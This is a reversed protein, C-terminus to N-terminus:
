VTVDLSITEAAAASLAISGLDVSVPLDAAADPVDSAGSVANTPLNAMMEQANNKEDEALEKQAYNREDRRRKTRKGRLEDDLTSAKEMEKRSEAAKKQLELTEEKNLHQQKKHIRSILKEMRRIMQAVKKADDGEALASAMKLSTLARTAKSSVDLVAIKTEARALMAALQGTSDEPISCSIKLDDTNESIKQSAKQDTESPISENKEDINKIDETDENLIPPQYVASDKTQYASPPIKM